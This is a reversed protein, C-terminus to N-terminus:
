SGDLLSNSADSSITATSMCITVLLKVMHVTLQIVCTNMLMHVTLQIVCTNMPKNNM